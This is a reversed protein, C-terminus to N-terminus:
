RPQGPRTVRPHMSDDTRLGSRETKLRNSRHLAHAGANWMLVLCAPLVWATLVFNMRQGKGHRTPVVTM